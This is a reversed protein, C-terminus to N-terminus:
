YPGTGYYRLSLYSRSSPGYNSRDIVPTPPQSSVPESRPLTYNRGKVPFKPYGPPLPTPNEPTARTVQEVSHIADGISFPSIYVNMEETGM